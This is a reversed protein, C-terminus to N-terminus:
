GHQPFNPGFNSIKQTFLFKTGPSIRIHLICHPHETKEKKCWFYGKQDFKQDLIDFSDSEVLIEEM